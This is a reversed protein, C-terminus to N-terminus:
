SLLLIILVGLITGVLDAFIDSISPTGDHSKDWIEKYVGVLSTLLFSIIISWTIPITISLLRFLLIVLFMCVNGHIWKDVPIKALIETIKKIMKINIINM